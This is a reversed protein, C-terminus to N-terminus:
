IYAFTRKGKQLNNVKRNQEQFATARRYISIPSLPKSQQKVNLENVAKPANSIIRITYKARRVSENRNASM